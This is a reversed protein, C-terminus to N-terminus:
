SHVSYQVLFQTGCQWPVDVTKCSGYNAQQSVCPALIELM